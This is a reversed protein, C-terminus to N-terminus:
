NEEEQYLHKGTLVKTVETGELLLKPNSIGRPKEIDLQLKYWGAELGLPFFSERLGKSKEIQPLAKNDISISTGAKSVVLLQYFGPTGIEFYGEITVRDPKVKQRHLKKLLGNVSKTRELYTEGNPLHITAKINAIPSSLDALPAIRAPEGVVTKVPASQVAGADSAARAQLFVPGSGLEVSNIVSRWRGGRVEAAALQRYGQYIGVREVGVATGSIVVDDGYFAARSINGIQVHRGGNDVSISFRGSSRTEVLSDEIAVLRLDHYGDEVGRTDWSIPEGMPAEAVLQGDVWLEVKAIGKTAAAQVDPVLTVSGSWVGVTDPSQLKVEAFQAFPRALPDGVIVLQYPVFISQYFSEALSCGDAYYAHLLPVPFKEQFSLPEMVAGSSGAAGHRLFETLKTQKHNHFDGGYSTLTEAIAGPLLRSGSKSWKYDTYGVVAGIVDSKGLPIIGNQKDKDRGKSKSLIKAKRGRKALEEITATFLPQRTV